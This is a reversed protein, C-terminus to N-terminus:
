VVADARECDTTMDILRCYVPNCTIKPADARFRPQTGKDSQTKRAGKSMVKAGAAHTDAADDLSRMM